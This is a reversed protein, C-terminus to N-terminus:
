LLKGPVMIFTTDNTYKLGQQQETYIIIDERNYLNHTYCNVQRGAKQAEEIDNEWLTDDTTPGIVTFLGKDRDTIVLYFPKIQKQRPM